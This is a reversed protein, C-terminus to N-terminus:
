QRQTTGTSSLWNSAPEPRHLKDALALARPPTFSKM